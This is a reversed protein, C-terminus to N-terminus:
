ATLQATHSLTARAHKRHFVLRFSNDFAVMFRTAAVVYDNLSVAAMLDRSISAGTLTADLSGISQAVM